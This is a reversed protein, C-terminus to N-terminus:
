IGIQPAASGIAKAALEARDSIRTASGWGSHNRGVLAMGASAMRHGRAFLAFPWTAAISAASTTPEERKVSAVFGPRERREPALQLRLAPGFRLLRM